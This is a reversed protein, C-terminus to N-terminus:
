KVVVVFGHKSSFEKGVELNCSDLLFSTHGSKKHPLKTFELADEISLDGDHMHALPSYLRLQSDERADKGSGKNNPGGYESEISDVEENKVRGIDGLSSRGDVTSKTLLVDDIKTYNDFCDFDSTSQWGNSSSTIGRYTNRAKFM